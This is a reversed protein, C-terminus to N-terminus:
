GISRHTSLLNASISGGWDVFINSPFSRGIVAAQKYHRFIASSTGVKDMVYRRRIKTTSASSSVLVLVGVVVM